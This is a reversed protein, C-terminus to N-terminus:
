WRYARDIRADIHVFNKYVGLGLSSSFLSNLFEGVEKPTVNTVQGDAAYGLTHQSNPKGGVKSNHQVCRCGSTITIPQNFKDRVLQWVLVTITSIEDFGCGCKCAFESKSFNKTIDGM